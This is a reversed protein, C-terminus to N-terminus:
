RAKRSAGKDKFKRKSTDPECYIGLRVEGTFRDCHTHAQISKLTYLLGYTQVAEDVDKADGIDPTSICWGLELAQQGLVQGDGYKDPIVVKQRPSKSIIHIQNQTLKGGFLCVGDTHYADFWGETIYLPQDTFRQLKDYGGIVNSKITAPSLYKQVHLDTLDRGQWFILKGDRYTPIILRGYWDKNRPDDDCRDVLFFPHRKWDVNRSSLYQIAYQAFDDTSDDTLPYFYPPFTLEPTSLDLTPHSSENPQADHQYVMASLLVPNWDIESLGFSTLVLEMDRPMTRHEHPSYRAGHGCNFCNYGVDNGFFKFGARKGKRGHDNCVRCLVSWFGHSNPKNPLPIHQRIVSELTTPEMM